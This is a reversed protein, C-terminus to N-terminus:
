LSFSKNDSKRGNVYRMNLSFKLFYCTYVTSRSRTVSFYGNLVEVTFRKM